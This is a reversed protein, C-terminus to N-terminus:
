PTVKLGQVAQTIGPTVDSSLSAVTNYSGPEASADYSLSVTGGAANVTARMRAPSTGPAFRVVSVGFPNGSAAASGAFACSAFVAAALFALRKV